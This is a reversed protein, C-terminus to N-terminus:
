KKIVVSITHEFVPFDKPRYVLMTGNLPMLGINSNKTIGTVLFFSSCTDDEIANEFTTNYMRVVNGVTANSLNTSPEKSADAKINM